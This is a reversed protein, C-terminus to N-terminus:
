HPRKRKEADAVRDEFNAEDDEEVDPPDAFRDEGLVMASRIEELVYAVETDIWFLYPVAFASSSGSANAIAAATASTFASSFSVGAAMAIIPTVENTRGLALTQGFAFAVMSAAARLVADASSGGAAFATAGAQSSALGTALAAGSSFALAAALARDAIVTGGVGAAFAVATAISPTVSQEM